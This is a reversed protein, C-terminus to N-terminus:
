RKKGYDKLHMIKGKPQVKSFYQEDGTIFVGNEVFAIAHYAADYFSVGPFEKMIELAYSAVGLNISFEHIQMLLLYSFYSLTKERSLKRGMFNLIEAYCFDPIGISIRKNVYDQQLFLAEKQYLEGEEFFWQLMVSADVIYFPKKHVAMNEVM